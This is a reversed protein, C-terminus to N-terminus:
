RAAAQVWGRITERPIGLERSARHMNGLKAVLDVARSKALPDYDGGRGHAKSSFSDSLGARFLVGIVAPRSIEMQEAIDAPTMGSKRLRVIRANRQPHQFRSM